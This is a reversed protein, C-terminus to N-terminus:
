SSLRASSGRHDHGENLPMLVVRRELREMRSEIVRHSQNEEGSALGQATEGTCNAEAVESTEEFYVLKGCNYRSTFGPLVKEKHEYVRRELNNTMGIYLVGDKRNTM